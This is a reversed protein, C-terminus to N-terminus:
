RLNESKKNAMFEVLDKRAIRWMARDEGAALNLAPLARTEVWRYVTHRSVGLEECIQRITLYDM